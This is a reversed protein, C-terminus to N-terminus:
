SLNPTEDDLAKRVYNRIRRVYGERDRPLSIKLTDTESPWDLQLISETKYYFLKQPYM